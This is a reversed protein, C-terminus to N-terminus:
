TTFKVTKKPASLCCGPCDHWVKVEFMGRKISVEPDQLMDLLSWYVNTCDMEWTTTGQTIAVIDTDDSTTGTYEEFHSLVERLQTIRVM